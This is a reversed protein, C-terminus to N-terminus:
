LNKQAERDSNDLIEDITKADTINAVDKITFEKKQMGGPASAISPVEKTPVATKPLAANVGEIRALEQMKKTIAPLNVKFFKRAIEGDRLIPKGYKTEVLSQDLAGENFLLSDLVPNSGDPAITLDFGVTKPDIKLDNTFYDNIFKVDANVKQENITGYNKVINNHDKFVNEVLQTSDEVAREFKRLWHPNNYNLDRVWEIYDPSNEDLSPPPNDKLFPLKEVVNELILKQRIEQVKALNEPADTTSANTQPVQPTGEPTTVPKTVPILEEKKKGLLKAQNAFSKVLEAIPQGKFKEVYKREDESLTALFEDTVLGNGTVPPTDTKPAEVPPTTEPTAANPDTAIKNGAEEIQEDLKATDTKPTDVTSAIVPALSSGEDLENLIADYDDVTQPKSFDNELPGPVPPIVAPTTGTPADPEFFRNGIIFNKM